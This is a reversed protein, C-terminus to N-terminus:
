TAWHCRRVRGSSGPVSGAWAAAWAAATGRTGRLGLLVEVEKQLLRGMASPVFQPPGVISAHARHSAGFADNVYGDIGDVLGAHGYLLGSQMAEVTNRGIPSRPARTEVRRLAATATILADESVELGPAISGGPSARCSCALLVVIVERLFPPMSRRPKM